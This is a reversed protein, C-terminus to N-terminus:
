RSIFADDLDDRIFGSVTARVSLGDGRNVARSMIVIAQADYIKGYKQSAYAVLAAEIDEDTLTVHIDRM